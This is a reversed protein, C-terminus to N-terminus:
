VIIIKGAHEIVYSEFQDSDDYIQLQAGGEFSMCFTGGPMVEATVVPVDLLKLIFQAEESFQTVHHCAGNPPICGISSTVLVSVGDNDFNLILDHQGFCAQILKQNVMFSVDTEPSLGYM